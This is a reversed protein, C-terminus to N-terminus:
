VNTKVELSVKIIEFVWLYIDVFVPERKSLFGNDEDFILLPKYPVLL